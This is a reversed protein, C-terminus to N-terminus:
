HSFTALDEKDIKGAFRMGPKDDLRVGAGAEMEFTVNQLTLEEGSANVATVGMVFSLMAVCALIVVFLNKKCLKM